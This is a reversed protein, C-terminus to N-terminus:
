VLGELPVVADLGISAPPDGRRRDSGLAASAGRCGRRLEFVEGRRFRDHLETEVSAREVRLDVVVLVQEPVVAQTELGREAGPLRVLGGWGVVDIRPGTQVPREGGGLVAVTDGLRQDIEAATARTADRQEGHDAVAEPRDRSETPAELVLAQPIRRQRDLGGRQEVEKSPRGGILSTGVMRSM